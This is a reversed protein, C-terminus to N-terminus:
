QQEQLESYKAALTRWQEVWQASTVGSHTAWPTLFQAPQAWRYMDPSLTCDMMAFIHCNDIM